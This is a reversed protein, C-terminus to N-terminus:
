RRQRLGVHAWTRRALVRAVTWRSVGYFLALMPVSEGDRAQRRMRRVEQDSLRANV